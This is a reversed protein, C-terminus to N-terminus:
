KTIAAKAIASQVFQIAESFSDFLRLWYVEGAWPQYAGWQRGIPCVKWKSITVHGPRLMTPTGAPVLVPMVPVTDTPVPTVPVIVAPNM